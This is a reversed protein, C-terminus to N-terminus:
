SSLLCNPSEAYVGLCVFAIDLLLAREAYIFTHLTNLRVQVDTTSMRVERGGLICVSTVKWGGRYDDFAKEIGELRELGEIVAFNGVKLEGEGDVRASM